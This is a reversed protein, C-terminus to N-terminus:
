PKWKQHTKICADRNRCQPTAALDIELAMTTMSEMYEIISQSCGLINVQQHTLFISYNTLPAKYYLNCTIAELEL